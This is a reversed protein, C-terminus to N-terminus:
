EVRIWFEANQRQGAHEFELWVKYLGAAPFTTRFSLPEPGPQVNLFDSCSAEASRRVIFLRANAPPSTLPEGASSLAFGLQSSTGAEFIPAKLTLRLDGLDRTTIQPDPPSAKPRGGPLSLSLEKLQAPCGAPKYGLFLRYAGGFPLSTTLLFRGAGQHQAQLQRFYTLNSSVASLQLWQGDLPDLELPSGDAARLLIELSFNQGPRIQERAILDVRTAPAPTDEAGLAALPLLMLLLSFYAKM